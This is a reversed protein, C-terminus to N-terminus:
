ETALDDDINTDMEEKSKTFLEKIKKGFVKVVVIVFIAILVLIIIYETMGQGEEDNHLKLMAKKADELSVSFDTDMRSTVMKLFKFM